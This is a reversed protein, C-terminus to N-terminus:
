APIAGLQQLLGLVDMIVWQEVIEGDLLRYTEEADFDVSRGTAPVGMFEGRQTGRARLRGVVVDGEGVLRRSEFSLDPFAALVASMFQRQGDRGVVDPLNTDHRVFGESLLREAADLDHTNWAELWREVVQKNEEASM